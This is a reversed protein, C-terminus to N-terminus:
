PPGRPLGDARLEMACEHCRPCALLDVGALRRVLEVLQADLDDDVVEDSETSAAATAESEAPSPDPSTLAARAQELKTHVNASALLGYHRIRVFGPPLVHLLFRELFTSPPLEARRDGRTRFVVRVDDVSLLRHNSLGIRHTYRGLYRFVAEAGGFPPKAYVVWDRAYLRSLAASSTPDDRAASGAPRRLAGEDRLRAVGALFKGRFLRGLVRVPLLFSPRTSRWGAETLGGGTVVCHLHPHWSLDRSWTHLVATVGLEAGLHKPDRGLELLAATAARFLLALLAPRNWRVLDRLAAPLTFVVHFYHVPLLRARRAELWRHQALAQCKPCHRDRCSNYSPREFGCAGCRDLHGGLTATRCAALAAMVRRQQRSLRDAIEPGHRRAIAGVEFRTRLGSTEAAPSDARCRM